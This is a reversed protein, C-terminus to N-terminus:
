RLSGTAQRSRDARLLAIALRRRASVINWALIGLVLAISPWVFAGYRGMSLNLETM